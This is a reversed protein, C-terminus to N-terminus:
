SQLLIKEVRGVAENLIERIEDAQAAQLDGRQFSRSISRFMKQLQEYVEEFFVEQAPSTGRNMDEYLDDLLQRNAELEERGKETLRYVKQESQDETSVLELEELAQLAPYVTGSSPRYVGGSTEQIYQMIDYGHRESTKLTDLILFRTEGRGIRPRRRSVMESFWHSKKHKLHKLKGRHKGKERGRQHHGQKKEKM